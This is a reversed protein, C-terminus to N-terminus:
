GTESDLYITTEKDTVPLWITEGTVNNYSYNRGSESDLYVTTEENITSTCTKTENAPNVKMDALPNIKMESLEIKRDLFSSAKKRFKSLHHVLKTRKLFYKIFMKLAQFVFAINALLCVILVGVCLLSDCQKDALVFVNAAWLLMLLSLLSNRELRHLALGDETINTESGHVQGVLGKQEEDDLGDKCKNVHFPLYIHHLAFAVMLIMIMVHLQMSDEFLFTTVMIVFMKRFLVISEWWWRDKRYGSYLLGLTFIYKNMIRLASQRWLISFVVLPMAVGYLLIGPIAILIAANLHRGEWCVEEMDAQLYVKVNNQFKYIRSDISRCNLNSMAFRILSPYVIFVFLVVSYTWIDRTKVTTDRAPEISHDSLEGSTNKRELVVRTRSVTVTKEWCCARSKVLKRRLGCSMWSCCPIPVLVLWWIYLVFAFLLPVLLLCGTLLYLFSASRGVINADDYNMYCSLSIVHESVSSVSSFVNMLLVIMRPWPVRLSFCLSVIQMHTLLIRKITSHVAKTKAGHDSSTSSKIKLFILLGFILLLLFLIGIIAMLGETLAESSTPCKNCTLADLSKSYGIRCTSCLRCSGEPSCERQFGAIENCGTTHNDEVKPCEKENGVCGGLCAESILCKAFFRDNNRDRWYGRKAIIDSWTVSGFCFAGEPCDSCSWDYPNSSTSNLYVNSGSCAKDNISLWPKTIASWKGVDHSNVGVTRIRFYTVFHQIKNSVTVFTSRPLTSPLTSVDAIFKTRTDSALFATTSSYELDFGLFEISDVNIQEWFVQLSTDNNNNSRIVYVNKPIPLNPNEAVETCTSTISVKGNPCIKCQIAGEKDAYERLVANCNLCRPSGIKNAYKGAECPYCSISGQFVLKM